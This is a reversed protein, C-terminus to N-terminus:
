SNIFTFVLNSLSKLCKVEFCVDALLTGTKPIVWGITQQWTFLMAGLIATKKWVSCIFNSENTTKNTSQDM